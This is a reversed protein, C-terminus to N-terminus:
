AGWRAPHPDAAEREDAEQRTATTVSSLISLLQDARVPKEVVGWVQSAASIPVTDSGTILITPVNLDRQAIESLTQVGDMNPMEYDLLVADVFHRELLDLAYRGDPAVLVNYGEEQLISRYLTLIASDNDVCLITKQM